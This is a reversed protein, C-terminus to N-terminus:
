MAFHIATGAVVITTFLMANLFAGTYIRGTVRYFFTTLAGALGLIPIFQYGIITWLPEAPNMLLGGTWMPIYEVLQLGVYAVVFIAANVGMEQWLNLTARRIQAFLAMSALFFYFFLPIVYRLAIDLQQFNPLKVAFVWFRYDTKFFFDTLVLTAYGLSVVTLALLFSKGIKSWVLKGGWTLGYEDGTGRQAPKLLLFHWVLFLILTILGNLVAWFVVQNTVAQPFTASAPLLKEAWGKFTFLTLPGIVGTLVVAIWWGAGVPGKVAPLPDTLGRFCSATLLLGGVAVLFLFFGLLAVLTGIEKWYWTQQDAPIEKEGDLTKQFWDVAHGIAVQSIHDGPHVVKPQYLVRATGAAIDGYVKGVQIDETTNFLAKMKDGKGAETAKPTLWMLASFEDWQSYVVALNRPFEPSGDPAGYTGTSSGELVMAKYGDPFTAAGIVSAWGGMSHGELGVNNQDVIALSKLYRLGEIGGFGDAFAPGESYGHGSQDLALVVFGRRAFEIAFGDQTERTNIYGHIALIGPAPKEATVGDPIYLLASYLRGNPAAFRVDKVTVKGFDTQILNALLGGLIIMALSIGLLKRFLNKDM